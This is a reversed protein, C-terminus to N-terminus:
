CRCMPLWPYKEVGILVVTLKDWAVAVSFTVMGWAGTCNLVVIDKYM